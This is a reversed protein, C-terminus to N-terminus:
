NRMLKIYAKGDQNEILKITGTQAITHICTHHVSLIADQFAQNDEMREIKLLKECIGINLHRTHSLTFSHDTLVEVTSAIKDKQDKQNKDGRLMNNSLYARALDESWTIVKQCEGILTPKYNNLIPQWVPIKDPDSKCEKYARNFEEIVGHTPIGDLQPDIPGLSSQKGMVISKCALCMMTGGSMALQPVIARIDQHFMRLLYDIISETAALDGGPTHLILDLGKSRDLGQITTMFGNKDDDNILSEIQNKFQLWGSYYIIVNRSTLNHLAKIYKRRVIDLAVESQKIEDNIDNWNPM